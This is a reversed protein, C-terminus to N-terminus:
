KKLRFYRTGSASVTVTNRTDVTVVPAGVAEWGGSDTVKPNSELSYGASHNTPWSLIVNAGSLAIALAPPAPPTVEAWSFGVRLEDAVRKAYGSGSSSWRWFFRDIFSWSQSVGSGQDAVTAVPPTTAGFTAPDPNIWLDCTDANVGPRFVYRAVIFVVDGSAFTHTSDIAGNGSTGGGKYVGFQYGGSGNGLINIKLPFTTSTGYSFGATTENGTGTIESDVRFAFSCYVEGASYQGFPKRVSSSANWTYRDGVPLALGPVTLNGAEVVGNAAASTMTWGGQGPLETGVTYAFPDYVLLNGYNPLVTLV